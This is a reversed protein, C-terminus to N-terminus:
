KPDRPVLVAGFEQPNRYYAGESSYRVLFKGKDKMQFILFLFSVERGEYSGTCVLLAKPLVDSWGVGGM